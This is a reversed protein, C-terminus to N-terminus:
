PRSIPKRGFPWDQLPAPARALMASIVIREPHYPEPPCATVALWDKEREYKAVLMKQIRALTTSSPTFAPLFAPILRSPKALVAPNAEVLVLLRFWIPLAIKTGALITGATPYRQFGCWECAQACRRRVMYFRAAKACKPCRSRPGWRERAIFSSCAEDDSFEAAVQSLYAAPLDAL